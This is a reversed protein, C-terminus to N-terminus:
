KKKDKAFEQYLNLFDRAEYSLESEDSSAGLEYNEVRSELLQFAIGADKPKKHIYAEKLANLSPKLEHMAFDKELSEGPLTEPYFYLANGPSPKMNSQMYNVVGEKRANEVEDWSGRAAIIKLDEIAAKESAPSRTSTAQSTADNLSQFYGRAMIVLLIDFAVISGITLWDGLKRKKVSKM